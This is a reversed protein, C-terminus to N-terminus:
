LEEGVAKILLEKSQNLKSSLIINYTDKNFSCLHPFFVLLHFVGVPISILYPTFFNGFFSILCIQSYSIIDLLKGLFFIAIFPFLAWILM